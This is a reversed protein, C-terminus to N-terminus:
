ADRDGADAEAVSPRKRGDLTVETVGPGSGFILGNSIIKEYSKLRAWEYAAMAAM